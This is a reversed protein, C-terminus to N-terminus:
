RSTLQAAYGSEFDPHIFRYGSAKIRLNRCRKSGGRRVAQREIIQSGTQQALWDMVEAIPAPRDDSALYIPALREGSRDLRILHALIGACDDRHIRNSYHIPTDPAVIGNRVQNLLHNRGPGYIGSFRVVTAPFEASLAMQESELLIRGTTSDPLSPSFEDVWQHDDQSYVSTSSTLLLRKPPRPLASLVRRLGDVYVARYVAPDRSKAAACYVLYDCAPLPPVGDASALDAAIPQIPAPLQNITRRLGLVEAGEAGLRLGLATGVDGCGAILIRTTHM